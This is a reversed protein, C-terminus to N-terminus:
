GRGPNFRRRKGAAGDGQARPNTTVRRIDLRNSPIREPNYFNGGVQGSGGRLGEMTTVRVEKFGQKLEQQLQAETFLLVEQQVIRRFKRDLWRGPKMLEAIIFQIMEYILLAIGVIIGGRVLKKLFIGSVFQFPNTALQKVNGFQENTMRQIDGMQGTIFDEDTAELDGLSKKILSLEDDNM